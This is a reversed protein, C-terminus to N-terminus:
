TIGAYYGIFFLESAQGLMQYYLDAQEDNYGPSNFIYEATLTPGSYLTYSAGILFTGELQNADEKDPRM